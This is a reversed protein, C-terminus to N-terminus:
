EQSTEQSAVYDFTFNKTDAGRDLTVKADDEVQICSKSQGSAAVLTLFSTKSKERENVPRVRIVVKVNTSQGTGFM